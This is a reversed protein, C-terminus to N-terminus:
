ETYKILKINNKYDSEELLLKMNNTFEGAIIYAKISRFIEKDNVIIDLWKLYREVQYLADKNAKGKKLEIIINPLTGKNVPNETDYVWIDARGM